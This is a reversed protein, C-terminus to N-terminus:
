NQKLFTLLFSVGERGKQKNQEYNHNLKNKLRPFQNQVKDKETKILGGNEESNQQPSNKHRFIFGHGGASTQILSHTL